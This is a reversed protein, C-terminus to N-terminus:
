EEAFLQKMPQQTAKINILAIVFFMLNNVLIKINVRYLM